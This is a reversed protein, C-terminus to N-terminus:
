PHSAERQMLAHDCITKAAAIVGPTIAIARRAAANKDRVTQGICHVSPTRKKIEPINKDFKGDVTSGNVRKSGCGRNPSLSSSIQSSQGWFSDATRFPNFSPWSRSWIEQRSSTPNLRPDGQQTRLTRASASIRIYKTTSDFLEQRSLVIRVCSSFRNKGSIGM